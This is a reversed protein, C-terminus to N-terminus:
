CANEKGCHSCIHISDNGWDYVFEHPDHKDGRGCPSDFMGYPTEVSGGCMAKSEWYEVRDPAMKLFCGCEKCKLYPPGEDYEPPGSCGPPYSWGFVSHGIM